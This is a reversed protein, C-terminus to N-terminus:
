ARRMLPKWGNRESFFIPLSADPIGHEFALTLGLEHFGHWADQSGDELLFGARASIAKLTAVAISADSLSMGEWIRSNTLAANHKESLIHAPYLKIEPHQRSIRDSISYSTMVCPCYSISYTADPLLSAFSIQSGSINHVRDITELFQNGSGAFDDIFVFQRVSGIEILAKEPTFIFGEPIRIVDRLKRAFLNGSDASHPVEGESTVFRVQNLQTSSPPRGFVVTDWQATLFKQIAQRLLADTMAKNFYTFGSLLREAIYFEEDRFNELWREVNLEQQRPWVGFDRFHDSRENILAISM